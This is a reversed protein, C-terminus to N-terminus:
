LDIDLGCPQNPKQPPQHNLQVSLMENEQTLQQIKRLMEHNRNIHEENEKALEDIKAQLQKNLLNVKQLEDAFGKLKEVSDKIERQKDTLNEYRLQNMAKSEVLTKDISQVSQSIVTTNTIIHAARELLVKHEGSLKEHEGSLGKHETSLQGHEKSLDANEKTHTNHNSDSKEAHKGLLKFTRRGFLVEVLVVSIVTASATILAVIISEVILQEDTM